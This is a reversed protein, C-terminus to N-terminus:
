KEVYDGYLNFCKDWRKVLGQFYKKTSIRQQWIKKGVFVACRWATRDHYVYESAGGDQLQQYTQVTMRM